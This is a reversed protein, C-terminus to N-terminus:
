AKEELQHIVAILVTGASDFLEKGGYMSGATWKIMEEAEERSQALQSVKQELLTAM